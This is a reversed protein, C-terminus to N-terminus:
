GPRRGGCGSCPHETAAPTYGSLRSGPRPRRPSSGSPVGPPSAATPEGTPSRCSSPRPQHDRRLRRWTPTSLHSPAIRRRVKGHEGSVLRSPKNRLPVAIRLDVDGQGPFEQVPEIRLEVVPKDASLPEVGAHKPPQA